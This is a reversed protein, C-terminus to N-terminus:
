EDDVGGKNNLAELFMEKDKAKLREFHGELNDRLFSIDGGQSIILGALTPMCQKDIWRQKDEITMKKQQLTLRLKKVGNVFDTWLPLTDCRSNRENNKSIFRIYNELVGVAVSGICSINVLEKAVLDAKDHKIELEWRTWNFDKIKQEYAKEYVRLYVDSERSGFYVTHGTCGDAFSTSKVNQWKKFRCSVQNNDALKFVDNVTFYEAGVDDIALDIRTFHGVELIKNLLMMNIDDTYFEKEEVSLGLSKKIQKRFDAKVDKDVLEYRKGFPTDVAMSELYRNFMYSVASGSVRFHIGMDNKGDFYVFINETVHRMSNRYGFGGRGCEDFLDEHLGFLRLYYSINQRQSNSTNLETITFELWDICAYLGNKLQKHFNM